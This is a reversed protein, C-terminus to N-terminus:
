EIWASQSVKEMYNEDFWTKYTLGTGNVADDWGDSSNMYYIMGEKEGIKYHNGVGADSMEDTVSDITSTYFVSDAYFDHYYSVTVDDQYISYYSTGEEYERPIGLIEINDPLYFHIGFGDVYERVNEGEWVENPDQIPQISANLYNDSIGESSDVNSYGSGNWKITVTKYITTALVDDGGPEDFTSLDIKCDGPNTLEININEVYTKVEGNYIGYVGASKQMGAAFASRWDSSYAFHCRDSVPIVYMNTSYHNSDGFGGFKIVDSGNTFLFYQYVGVADEENGVMNGLEDSLYWAAAIMDNKGDGDFDDVVPEVDVLQGELKSKIKELLEEDTYGSEISDATKETKDSEEISDSEQEKSSSTVNGKQYNDSSSNNTGANRSCATITLLAIMIFVKFISKRM